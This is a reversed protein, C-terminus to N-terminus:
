FYKLFARTKSICIFLTHLQTLYEFYLFFFMNSASSGQRKFLPGSGVEGNASVGGPPNFLFDKILPLPNLLNLLNFPLGNNCFNLFIAPFTECPWSNKRRVLTVNTHLSEEDDSSDSSSSTGNSALLIM